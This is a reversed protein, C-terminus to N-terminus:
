TLLLTTNDKIYRLIHNADGQERDFAQFHPMCINSGCGIDLGTSSFIEQREQQTFTALTKAAENM